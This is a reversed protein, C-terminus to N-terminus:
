DEEQDDDYLPVKFWFISGEQQTMMTEGNGDVNEDRPPFRPKYGYEGGISGIQVAVSYLGLGQTQMRCIPECGGNATPRVCELQEEYSDSPHFLLPYNEIPINPATDLCEVFLYNKSGGKQTASHDENTKTEAGDEEMDSTDNDTTTTTTTTNQGAIMKVVLQISGKFTRQCANSLFNLASRFIKLEDACIEKPVSEDLTISVPVYKPFAELIIYWAQILHSTKFADPGRLASSSRLFSARKKNALVRQQLRLDDIATSCIKSVADSCYLANQLLEQEEPSMQDTLSSDESLTALNRQVGMLPTLLEHAMLAITQKPNHFHARIKEKRRRSMAEMVMDALDRLNQKEELTLGQPRAQNGLVCLTGLKYGEPAILPAGAYFRVQLPGTVLPNNQFRPDLTADPVVMVDEQQCLLVHACFANKRCIQNTGGGLGYQSLFWQRDIDSLSVLAIPQDLMRSALRTIAGFGLSSGDGDDEEDSDLLLYSRLVLLRRMESDLTQTQYEIDPVTNQNDLVWDKSAFPTSDASAHLLSSSDSLNLKLGQVGTSITTNAPNTNAATDDLVAAAATTVALDRLQMARLVPDDFSLDDDGAAPNDDEEEEVNDNNLSMDTLALLLDSMTQVENVSRIAKM